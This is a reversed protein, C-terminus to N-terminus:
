IPQSMNALSIDLRAVVTESEMRTTMSINLTLEAERGQIEADGFKGRRRRCARLESASFSDSKEIGGHRLMYRQPAMTREM